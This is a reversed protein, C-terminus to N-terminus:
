LFIPVIKVIDLKKITTLYVKLHEMTETSKRIREKCKGDDPRKELLTKLKRIKHVLKNITQLRAQQIGKKNSIVKSLLFLAKLKIVRLHFANM